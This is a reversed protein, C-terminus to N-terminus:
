NQNVKGSPCVADDDGRATTFDLSFHIHQISFFHFLTAFDRASRWIIDDARNIRRFAPNAV